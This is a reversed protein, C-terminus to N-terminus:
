LPDEPMSKGLLIRGGTETRFYLGSPLITLPLPGKPKVATDLVFVQRKVPEVPLNVSATRAIKAAWAGACNLVYGASLSEGSALRVGTVRTGSTLIKTVQNKIYHAGLSRAKAKYGMLFAYADFHGDMPGFTGGVLNDSTYLPYRKKINEPPWWEVQCDLNKQLSISAKAASEGTDDVLFLNGERRFTINPRHNDVALEEEFKALVDFTFLSVRINEELSFQIRANAL